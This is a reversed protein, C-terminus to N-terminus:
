PVPRAAALAAAIGAQLERPQFPKRLRPVTRYAEPLAEAGHGTALVFGIGRAALAEALPFVPRGRVDVDLVAADIEAGAAIRLAEDLDAVPGLVDCGLSRLLEELAMAVFFEDEVLLIRKGALAIEAM